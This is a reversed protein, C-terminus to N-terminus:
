PQDVFIARFDNVNTMTPGTLVLQDLQQFFSYADNNALFDNPKLNLQKAKLLSRQDIWAGANDETGDIGDTDVAIASIGEEGQLAELLSLIFEANRGGKGNGRVTVTTEGGSLIMAPANLPQDRHKIQKAIAAHVKAVERAEGEIRDSLIIPTIGFKEAEKAAAELMLQPTAVLRVQNRSFINERPKPTEEEAAELLAQIAPTPQIQYRRLIELADAFTTPDPVTPGSAIVSLDDGPVDSIALTWLRAPQVAGALRGGKISSLHKRVCNIEGITAGSHLLSRNLAQKDQLTLGKAPLALLASGGGSILCIVLDRDTATKALNLIRQATIQGIEDPVPHSAEVIEISNCHVGYGYRTLVLGCLNAGWDTGQWHCELANAMEASAKGAGLVIIQEPLKETQQIEKLYGPLCIKPQSRQIAAKLTQDLIEPLSSM